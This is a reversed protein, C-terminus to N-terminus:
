SATGPAEPIKVAAGAIHEDDEIAGSHNMFCLLDTVVLRGAAAAGVVGCTVRRGCRGAPDRVSVNCNGSQVLLQQLARRSSEKRM